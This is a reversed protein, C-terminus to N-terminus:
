LEQILPGPQTAASRLHEARQAALTQQELEGALSERARQVQELAHHLLDPRPMDQGPPVGLWAFWAEYFLLRKDAAALGARLRKSEAPTLRTSTVFPSPVPASGAVAPSAAAAAGPAKGRTERKLAARGAQVMERMHALAAPVALLEPAAPPLFTSSPPSSQPDEAEEDDDDSDLPAEEERGNGSAVEVDALPVVKCSDRTASLELMTGVDDLLDLGAADSRFLDPQARLRGLVGQVAARCSRLVAGDALVASLELLVLVTQVPDAGVDGLVHRVAAAYATLLDLLNFLLERAPAKGPPLLAALPPLSSSCAQATPARLPVLEALQLPEATPQGAALLWWPRWGSPLLSAAAAENQMLQEFHLQEERTLRAWM